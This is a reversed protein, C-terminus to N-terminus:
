INSINPYPLSSKMNKKETEQSPLQSKPKKKKQFHSPLHNVISRFQCIVQINKWLYKIDWLILSHNQKYISQDYVQLQYCMKKIM